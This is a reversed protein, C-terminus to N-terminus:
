PLVFAFGQARLTAFCRPRFRPDGRVSAVLAARLLGFGLASSFCALLLSFFAPLLLVFLAFLLAFFALAHMLLFALGAFRARGGTFLLASVFGWFMRLDGARSNTAANGVQMLDFFFALASSFVRPAFATFAAFAFLGFEFLVLGLRLECGLRETQRM